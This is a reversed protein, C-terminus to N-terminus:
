WVSKVVCVFEQAPRLRVSLQQLAAAQKVLMVGRAAHAGPRENSVSVHLLQEQVLKLSAICRVLQAWGVDDHAARLRKQLERLVLVRQNLMAALGLEDLAGVHGTHLESVVRQIIAVSKTLLAHTPVDMELEKRRNLDTEEDNAAARRTVPTEEDVDELQQTRLTAASQPRQPTANRGHPNASQPRARRAPAASTPRQM